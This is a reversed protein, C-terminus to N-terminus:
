KIKVLKKFVLWYVCLGLVIYLLMEIFSADFMSYETPNRVFMMFQVFAQLILMRSIDEIMPIYEKGIKDTVDIEYSELTSIM